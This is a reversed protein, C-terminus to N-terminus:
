KDIRRGTKLLKVSRRMVAFDLTSALALALRDGRLQATYSVATTRITIQVFTSVM